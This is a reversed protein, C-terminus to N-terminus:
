LKVEVNARESSKVEFWDAREFNFVKAFLLGPFVEVGENWDTVASNYARRSASIQSEVETLNRQLMLFQESSGLEPYNETLAFLQNIGATVEEERRFREASGPSANRAAIVAELLEREHGAFAKVAEVLNPILEWRKKLQVDVSAFANRMANRRSIFGNYIVIASVLVLASGAFIWEMNAIM